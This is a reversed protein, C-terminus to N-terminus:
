YFHHQLVVTARHTLLAFLANVSALSWFLSVALWLRDAPILHQREGIEWMNDILGQHLLPVGKPLATSGSTYLLCAVDDEKVGSAVQDFTGDGFVHIVIVIFAIM